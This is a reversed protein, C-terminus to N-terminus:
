EESDIPIIGQPKRITYRTMTQNSEFGLGIIRKDKQTIIVLSDSYIIETQQNWALEQTEFKEGQLNIAKVSDNLVWLKKVEYFRARKCDIQADVNYFPDFRDFHLGEPFDWYPEAARDYVYWKPATIRYRTVGSDSVLTTVSDVKLRPVQTRDVVVDDVLKPKNGSCAVFFLIVIVEFTITISSIINRKNKYLICKRSLPLHHM